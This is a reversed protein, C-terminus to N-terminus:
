PAPPGSSQRRRFGILMLGLVLLAGQEGNSGSTACGSGLEQGDSNGSGGASDEKTQSGVEILNDEFTPQPIDRGAAGVASIELFQDTAEGDEGPVYSSDGPHGNPVFLQPHDFPAQEFRVREDTLARMFAVINAKDVEDLGPGSNLLDGRLVGLGTIPSDANREADFGIIPHANDLDFTRFNGGRFYFEVVDELSSEGGNHFYPATLEVNRLTPIKFAGDDGLDAALEDDIGDIKDNDFDGLHTRRAFGLPNGFPDTGGVGLDDLTPRVGINNFGEDILDGRRIRTLGREEVRAVSAFTFEGGGHCNLCRGEDDAIHFGILESQTLANENGDLFRDVPSDDSVLTSEYLQVSLGFFLSFNVEMQSFIDPGKTRRSRIITHEGDAGLRVRYKSNWWKRAFARRILLRYSRVKLGNRNRRALHGLVSDDPHVRQKGLPRVQNYRNLLRRGIDPWQQGRASMESDSVPPAVSQSALSSNDIEVRVANLSRRTPSVFVYANPDDTGFPSVGNFINSARGDWFNRHNFVANITTPTQRPEVRRVNLDAIQFGDPDPAFIASLLRRIFERFHVGQSSAVENSDRVTASTFLQSDEKVHFPFDDPLLQHNPGLDGGFSNDPNSSGDQNARKLGPSLQNKVRSDAGGNFHCSACAQVGDSGIQMDWFLAKGLELAAQEDVIFEGLNTPRPVPIDKLSLIEERITRSGDEIGALVDDSVGASAPTSILVGLSLVSLAYRATM